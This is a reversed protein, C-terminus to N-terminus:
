QTSGVLDEDTMAWDDGFEIPGWHEIAGLRRERAKRWLAIPIVAAVPTKAAGRTILFEEGAEVARLVTSLNAKAQAVQLAQM